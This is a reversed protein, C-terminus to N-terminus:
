GGGAAGRARAVADVLEEPGFPKGLFVRAGRARSQADAEETALGSMAVVALSPWREHASPERM